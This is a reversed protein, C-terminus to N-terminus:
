CCGCDLNLCGGGFEWVKLIDVFFLCCQFDLNVVILSFGLYYWFYFILVWCGFINVCYLLFNVFVGIIIVRLIEGVDNCLVNELM